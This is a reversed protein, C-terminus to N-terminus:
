SEGEEAEDRVLELADRRGEAVAAEVDDEAAGPHTLPDDDAYLVRDAFDAVIEPNATAAVMTASDVSSGRMLVM